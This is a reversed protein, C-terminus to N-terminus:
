PNLFAQNKLKKQRRKKPLKGEVVLIELDGRSIEFEKSWAHDFYFQPMDIEFMVEMRALMQQDGPLSSGIPVEWPFKDEIGKESVRVVILTPSWFELELISTM